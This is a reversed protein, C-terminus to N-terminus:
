SLSSLAPMEYSMCRKASSLLLSAADIPFSMSCTALLTLASITTKARCLLTHATDLLFCSPGFCRQNSLDSLTEGILTNSQAPVLSQTRQVLIQQVINCIMTVVALKPVMIPTSSPVTWQLMCVISGTGESNLPHAKYTTHQMSNSTHKVEILHWPDKLPSQEHKCYDLM